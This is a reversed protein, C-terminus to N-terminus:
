HAAAHGSTCMRQHRTRAGELARVESGDSKKSGFTVLIDSINVCGAWHAIPKAICQAAFFLYYSCFSAILRLRPEAGCLDWILYIPLRKRCDVGPMILSMTM